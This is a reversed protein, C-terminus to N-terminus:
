TGGVRLLAWDHITRALLDEAATHPLKRMGLDDIILLPVSALDTLYEKRTGGLTPDAIEEILSHAERYSMLVRRVRRPNSL